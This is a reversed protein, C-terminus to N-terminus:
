WRFQLGLGKRGMYVYGPVLGDANASRSHHAVASGVILGMTAGAIVDSPFHWHDEIRGLGTSIALAYAPAGAKWGFRNWLIPAVTFASSTHGSPFSWQGGNPRTRDVGTKIAFVLAGDIVLGTALDHAAGTMNSSGAFRGATWLGATGAALFAASGYRNGFDGGLELPTRNLSRATAEANENEWAYWTALGGAVAYALHRTTAFDSLSPAGFSPFGKGGGGITQPSLQNAAAQQAAATGTFTGWALLAAV